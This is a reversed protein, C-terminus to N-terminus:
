TRPAPAPEAAGPEADAAASPASRRIAVLAVAAIILAMGGVGYRSVREGLLWMGLLVAVAPNVYAYSTALAPRVNRLLFGYASFGVISGFAALYLVALISRASPAAPLREGFAAGAVLLVAGGALMQAASAMAGKPLPATRSWVSGLAWCAPAVLLLAAGLPSGRLDAELNLLVVGAAGVALGVWERRGPWQGMAGAFLAAWLPVSAVMVAALGSAVWQEAICIPGNSLSLMLVGTGASAAWERPTPNPAGRLRLWLFMVGGALLFRVGAMLLPPLTEVGVRMALYTSGWVVYVALLALLVPGAAKGSRMESLHGGPARMM